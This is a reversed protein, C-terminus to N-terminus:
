YVDRLYRKSRKLNNVYDEAADADLGGHEAVVEHLADDVDKAMRTADGCVYVHAGNELWDFLERGQERMRTQVYIKESQDRSFALDLRTLVGDRTLGNLEDEYIFDSSQHQDGFFLWNQGSANRARREHLFARFPAIGTGPGIMVVPVADDAPLRFSNNKSVFVGVRDGEGVRDALYTSCVGGRDREGSRYRVSAVTLHVTGDHALPSSSISYVRHQLPRLLTLLDEPNLRISNDLQLLDLVDKGWLWADLAERDETDLIHQLEADGSRRAIDEILDRSPISIEYDSTLVQDLPASSGDKATVVYDGSVGLQHIIAEVLAPDNIPRIGLGDGAEYDLGDEGLAFTFHRVEKASDEGSLLRNALVTAPYPNKRTWQSKTKTQAPAVPSAAAGADGDVGAVAAVARVIWEAAPDEYDVDCDTRDVVRTGGLAEFRADINKGSQCYGDYSTDGLALVGFYLGELRPASESEVADWFLQANDPMEGEGYTSTIVLVRRMASLANIDVTDLGAVLPELGHARAAAAADEAVSEANGTQSGYLIHVAAGAAREVTATATGTQGPMVTRSHLGALFGSLWARQDGTFPAYEPIYPIEM